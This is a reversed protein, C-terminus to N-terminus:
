ENMNVRYLWFGILVLEGVIFIYLLLAWKFEVQTSVYAILSLLCSAICAVSLIQRRTLGMAELRLAFHDKSGLFPSKDQIIRYFTVLLTDFIPIGLILIPAFLGIVNVNTYSTGLAISALIFG